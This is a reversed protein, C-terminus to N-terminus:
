NHTYRSTRLDKSFASRQASFFAAGSCLTCEYIILAGANSAKQEVTPPYDSAAFTVLEQIFTVRNKPQNLIYPFFYFYMVPTYAVIFPSM